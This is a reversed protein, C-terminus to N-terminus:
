NHNKAYDNYYKLFDALCERQRSQPSDLRKGEVCGSWLIPWAFRVLEHGAPDAEESFLVYFIMKHTFIQRLQSHGAGIEIEKFLRLAEEYHGFFVLSQLAVRVVLLDHMEIDFHTPYFREFTDKDGREILQTMFQFVSNYVPRDCAHEKFIRNGEDFIELEFFLLSVDHAFCGATKGKKKQNGGLDADQYLQSIGKHAERTFVEAKDKNELDLYARAASLLAHHRRKLDRQKLVHEQLADHEGLFASWYFDWGYEGKKSLDFFMKIKELYFPQREDCGLAVMKRLLSLYYSVNGARVRKSPMYFTDFDAAVRECTESAQLHGADLQRLILKEYAQIPQLGEADPFRVMLLLAQYSADFDERDLFVEFAGNLLSREPSPADIYIRFMGKHDPGSRKLNLKEIVSLAEQHREAGILFRAFSFPNEAAKGDRNLIAWAEDERGYALFLQSVEDRLSAFAFSGSDSLFADQLRGERELRGFFDLIDIKLSNDRVSRFYPLYRTFYAGGQDSVEFSLKFNEFLSRAVCDYSLNELCPAAM